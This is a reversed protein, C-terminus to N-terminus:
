NNTNISAKEHKNLYKISKKLFNINEKFYGLGKNCSFCLLDRVTNTSHNHDIAVCSLAQGVRNEPFTMSVGCIACKGRQHKWMREFDEKDINYKKKTNWFRKYERIEEKSKEKSKLYCKRCKETFLLKSLEHNQITGCTCKCTVTKKNWKNRFVNSIVVWDNIKSGITYNFNYM